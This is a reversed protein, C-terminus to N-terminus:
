DRFGAGRTRWLNKWGIAPNLNTSTGVDPAMTVLLEGPLKWPKESDVLAKQNKGLDKEALSTNSIRTLKATLQGLMWQTHPYSAMKLSIELSPPLEGFQALKKAFFEENRQRLQHQEKVQRLLEDGRKKLFDAEPGKEFRAFHVEPKIGQAKQLNDMEEQSTLASHNGPQAAMKLGWGKLTHAIIITPRRKSKKSALMAEALGFIDHGGLDRLSNYLDDDSIGELFKKMDPHEKAIGKKLAKM